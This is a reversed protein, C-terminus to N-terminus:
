VITSLYCLIFMLSSDKMLCSFCPFDFSLKSSSVFFLFFWVKKQVEIFIGFSCNIMFKFHPNNGTGNIFSDDIFFIVTSFTTFKEDYKKIDILMQTIKILTALLSPKHNAMLIQGKTIVVLLIIM